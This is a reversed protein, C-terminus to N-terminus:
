KRGGGHRSSPAAVAQAQRQGRHGNRPAAARNCLKAINTAQTLAAGNLVIDHLPRDGELAAIFGRTIDQHNRGSKAITAAIAPAARPHIVEVGPHQDCYAKQRDIMFQALARDTESYKPPPPPMGPLQETRKGSSKAAVKVAGQPARAASGPSEGNPSDLQKHEQKHQDGIGDEIGNTIGDPIPYAFHHLRFASAVAPPVNLLGKEAGARHNMNNAVHGYAWFDFILVWRGPFLRITGRKDLQEIEYQVRRPPPTRSDFDMLGIADAVDEVSYRLCGTGNNVEAALKCLAVLVARQSGPWENGDFLRTELTFYNGEAGNASAM